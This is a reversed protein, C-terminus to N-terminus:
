GLAVALGAVPFLVVFLAGPGFPSTRTGQIRSLRPNNPEYEVTVPLRPAPGGPGAPRLHFQEGVTYSTGKVQTGDPLAFTYDCRYVATGDENEGGEHFSTKAVGELWGQAQQRHLDLRWMGIPDTAPVFFLAFVMGFAFGASGGLTVPGALLSCWLRLPMGRPPPALDELRPLPSNSDTAM